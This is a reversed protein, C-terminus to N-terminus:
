SKSTIINIRLNMTNKSGELSGASKRNWVQLFRTTHFHLIRRDWKSARYITMLPSEQFNTENLSCCIAIQHHLIPLIPQIYSLRGVLIRFPLKQSTLLTCTNNAKKRSNCSWSSPAKLLLGWSHHNCREFAVWLLLRKRQEM